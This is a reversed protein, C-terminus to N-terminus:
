DYDSFKKSVTVFPFNIGAMIGIRISPRAVVNDVMLRFETLDNERFNHRYDPQYIVLKKVYAEAETVDGTMIASLAALRFIGICREKSIKSLEKKNKLYPKLVNLASDAMGYNYLQLAQNYDSDPDTFQAYITLPTFFILLLSIAIIYKIRKM